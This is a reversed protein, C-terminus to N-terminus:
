WSINWSKYWYSKPNEFLHTFSLITSEFCSPLFLRGQDAECRCLPGDNAMKLENYWLESHIRDPHSKITRIFRILEGAKNLIKKYDECLLSKKPDKRDSKKEKFLGAKEFDKRFEKLAQSGITNSTEADNMAQNLEDPSPAKGDEDILLENDEDENEDDHEAQYGSLVMSRSRRTVEPAQWEPKSNLENKHRKINCNLICSTKFNWSM